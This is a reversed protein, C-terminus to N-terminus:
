KDTVLRDQTLLSFPIGLIKEDFMRAKEHRSVVVGFSCDFEEIFERIPRLHRLNLSQTHRIKIPITGFKGELIL